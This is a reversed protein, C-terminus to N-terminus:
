RERAVMAVFFALHHRTVPFICNAESRPAITILLFVVRLLENLPALMVLRRRFADPKVVECLAVFKANTSIAGMARTKVSLLGRFSPLPTSPSDRTRVFFVRVQGRGEHRHEGEM